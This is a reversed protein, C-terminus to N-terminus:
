TGFRFAPISVILRFHSSLQKNKRGRKKFFPPSLSRPAAAFIAPPRSPPFPKLSAPPRPLCRLTLQSSPIKRSPPSSLQWSNRVRGSSSTDQLSPAHSSPASREASRIGAHKPLPIGRSESLKREKRADEEKRCRQRRKRAKKKVECESVGQKHRRSQRNEKEKNIQKNADKFSGQGDKYNLQELRGLKTM